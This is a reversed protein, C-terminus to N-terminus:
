PRVMPGLVFLPPIQGICANVRDVLTGWRFPKAVYGHVGANIASAIVDSEAAGTLLIVRTTTLVGEDRLRRLVSLGDSGPLDYDLLIVRASLSPCLGGLAAVAADGDGFSRVQFGLERFQEVLLEAMTQDDEVLVMDVAEPAGIAGPQPTAAAITPSSPGSTHEFGNPALCEMERRLLVLIAPIQAQQLHGPHRGGGLMRWFQELEGAAESAAPLGFSGLGGALKHSEREAEKRLEEDLSGAALARYALDVVDLRHAYTARSRQWIQAVLTGLAHQTEVDPDTTSIQSLTMSSGDTM